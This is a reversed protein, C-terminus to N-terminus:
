DSKHIPVTRSTKLQSPFKGTRLSLNFLHILPTDISFKIFKIMKNSISNIDNSSKPELNNIITILEAQSFIGFEMPLVNMQDYKLYDEPIASTQEVSNSIKRGV